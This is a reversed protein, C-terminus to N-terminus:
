PYFADPPLPAAGELRVRLMLAERTVTAVKAQIQREGERWRVIDGPQIDIMEPRIYADTFDIAFEERSLEDVPLWTYRRGYGRREVDVTRYSQQMAYARNNEPLVFRNMLRNYWALHNNTSHNQSLVCSVYCFSSSHSYGCM